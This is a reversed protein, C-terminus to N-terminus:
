PREAALETDDDRRRRVGVPGGRLVQGAPYCPMDRVLEYPQRCAQCYVDRVIVWTEEEIRAGSRRVAAWVQAAELPIEAAAVWLHEHDPCFVGRSRPALEKGCDAAECM